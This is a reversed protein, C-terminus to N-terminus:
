FFNFNVFSVTAHRAGILRARILGERKSTRILTVDVPLLEIYDDLPRKLSPWTSFDDVLVIEKILEPPTRDIVSWVTRFLTSWAENHFIIIVSTTPLRELYVLSKCDKSRADPLSRHLSILDSALLNYNHEKLLQEMLEKKDSPPVFAKGLEGVQYHNSKTPPIPESWRFLDTEGYIKSISFPWGDREYSTYHVKEQHFLIKDLRFHRSIRNLFIGVKLNMYKTLKTAHFDIDYFSYLTFLITVGLVCVFILILRIKMAVSISQNFNWQNIKDSIAVFVYCLAPVKVRHNLM